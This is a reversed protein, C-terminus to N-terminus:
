SRGQQMEKLFRGAVEVDDFPIVTDSFEQYNEHGKGAILVTDGKGAEGLATAIASKRDEIVTHNGRGKFGKVIESIIIEPDEQRPNDSTIYSHDAYLSAICGMRPRKIRDRNGGCGFVLLVRGETTERVMELVNKLADDTHAYDVFVQFGLDNKVPEMRGEIVDIDRLAEVMLPLEVGMSGCATMAALANSINYRGHLQLCVKGSGWPSIIGFESGSSSLHIDTARVVADDSTGYTIITANLDSRAALEKGKIDDVNIVAVSKKQGKGLGEFLLSKAAFYKEM